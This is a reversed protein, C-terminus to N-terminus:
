MYGWMPIDTKHTRARASILSHETVNNPFTIRRTHHVQTRGASNFSVVRWCNWKTIIPHRRSSGENLKGLSYMWIKFQTWLEGLQFVISDSAPKTVCVWSLSPNYVPTTNMVHWPLSKALLLLLSVRLWVPLCPPRGPLLLWNDCPSSRNYNKNFGYMALLVLPHNHFISTCLRDQALATASELGFCSKTIPSHLLIKNRTIAFLFGQSRPHWDESLTPKQYGSLKSNATSTLTQKSAEERSGRVHTNGQALSANFTYRKTDSLPQHPVLFVYPCCLAPTEKCHHRCEAQRPSDTGWYLIGWLMWCASCVWM